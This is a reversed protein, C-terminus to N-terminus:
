QHPDERRQLSQTQVVVHQDCALGGEEGVLGLCAHPQAFRGAGGALVSWPPETELYPDRAMRHPLQGEGCQAGGILGKDGPVDMRVTQLGAVRLAPGDGNAVGGRARRHNGGCAWQGHALEGDWHYGLGAAHRTQGRNGRAQVDGALNALSRAIVKRRREAGPMVRPRM